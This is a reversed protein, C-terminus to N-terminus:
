VNFRSLLNMATLRARKDSDLIAELTDARCSPLDNMVGEVIRHIDLFKIKQKLFNEVAIENAANMIAPM